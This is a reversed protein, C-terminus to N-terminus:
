KVSELFELVARNWVEPSEFYPSHGTTPIEIVTANKTQAAAAHIANPVFIPDNEGGVFLWPTEILAVKKMDWVTQRLLLAMNAPAPEAVSGIQTYLFAQPLNGSTLQIGLAPHHGMPLKDPPPSQAAKQIYSDFLGEIEKTYIGGITDALVISRVREPHKAAFGVTCWGGMSQGILHAKDIDLHNLLLELDRAAAEPSAKGMRNTSRGFGRQDWTVVRYDQAFVPVQQYWIAHNGGLGHSFIMAE